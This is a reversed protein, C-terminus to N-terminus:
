IIFVLLVSTDYDKKCYVHHGLFTLGSQKMKLLYSQQRLCAMHHKM